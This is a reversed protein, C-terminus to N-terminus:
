IQPLGDFYFTFRAYLLFILCVFFLNWHKFLLFENKCCFLVKLQQLLAMHQNQIENSSAGEILFKEVHFEVWDLISSFRKGFLPTVLYEKGLRQNSINFSTHILSSIFSALYRNGFLNDLAPIQGSLRKAQTADKTM